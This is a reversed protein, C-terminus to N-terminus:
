SIIMRRGNAVIALNDIIQGIIMLSKEIWFLNLYSEDHWYINTM